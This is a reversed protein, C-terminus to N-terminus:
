ITPKVAAHASSALQPWATARQVHQDTQVCPEGSCVVGAYTDRGGQCQGAEWVIDCDSIDTEKGSCHVQNVFHLRDRVAFKSRSPVNKVAALATQYGLSKCILRAAHMEWQDICVAGWNGAIGVEVIGEGKRRGGSLQWKLNQVTLPVASCFVCLM